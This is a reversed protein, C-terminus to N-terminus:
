NANQQLKTEQLDMGHTKSISPTTARPVCSAVVIPISEAHIKEKIFVCGYDKKSYRGM